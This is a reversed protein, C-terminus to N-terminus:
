TAAACRGPLLLLVQQSGQCHADVAPAPLLKPSPHSGFSLLHAHLLLLRLLARGLLM